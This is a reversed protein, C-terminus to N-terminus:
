TYTGPTTSPSGIPNKFQGPGIGAVGLYQPFHREWVDQLLMTRRMQLTSIEQETWPWATPGQHGESLPGNGPIGMRQISPGANLVPVLPGLKHIPSPVISLILVILLLFKYQKEKNWIRNAPVLYIRHRLARSVM